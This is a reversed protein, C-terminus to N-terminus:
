AQTSVTELGADVLRFNIGKGVAKKLRTRGPEDGQAIVFFAASTKKGSLSAQPAPQPL